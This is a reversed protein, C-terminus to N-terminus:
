EDAADSTYLLCTDIIENPYSFDIRLRPNPLEPLKGFEKNLSATIRIIDGGKGNARDESYDDVEDTLLPKNINVYSLSCVPTSNDIVLISYNLTDQNNSGTVSFTNSFYKTGDDSIFHGSLGDSHAAAGDDCESETNHGDITEDCGTVPLDNGALDKVNITVNTSCYDVAQTGGPSPIPGAYFWKTSDDVGYTSVITMDEVEIDQLLGGEDLFDISIKPKQDPGPRVRENFHAWCITDNHGSSVVDLKYDIYVIPDTVDYLVRTSINEPSPNDAMDLASWSIDYFTGDVLDDLDNTLVLDINVIPSDQDDLADLETDTLEIEHVGGNDEGSIGTWTISGSFVDESLTYTVLSTNRFSNSAPESPIFEPPTNDLVVIGRGTNPDILNNAKDYATPTITINGDVNDILTLIYDYEFNSTAAPYPDTGVPLDANLTRWMEEAPLVTGDPFDIALTPKIDVQISDNFRARIRLYENNFSVLKESDNDPEVVTSSAGAATEEFYSYTVKPAYTDIVINKKQALANDDGVLPLDRNLDNGALDTLGGTNPYIVLSSSSVYNLDDVPHNVLINPLLWEGDPFDVDESSEDAGITYTYYSDRICM